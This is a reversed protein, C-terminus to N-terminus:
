HTEFLTCLSAVVVPILIYLQEVTGQSGEGTERCPNGIKARPLCQDKKEWKLNAKDRRDLLLIELDHPLQINLKELFHWVLKWLLQTM